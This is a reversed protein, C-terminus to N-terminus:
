QLNINKFHRIIPEKGKFLISVADIQLSKTSYGNKRCYITGALLLRKFKKKTIASHPSGFKESTRFKVEVVVIKEEVKAILDAEGGKVRFNKEIIEYGNKKLYDLALNEGKRGKYIQDKLSNFNFLSLFKQFM